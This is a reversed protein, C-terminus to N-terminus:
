AIQRHMNLIWKGTMEVSLFSNLKSLMANKKLVDFVNVVGDESIDFSSVRLTIVGHLSILGYHTDTFCLLKM